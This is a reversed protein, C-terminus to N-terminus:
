RLNVLGVDFSVSLIYVLRVRDLETRIWVLEHCVNLERGLYVSLKQYANSTNIFLRM